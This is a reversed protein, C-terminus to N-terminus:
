VPETLPPMVAAMTEQPREILPLHWRGARSEIVVEHLGPLAERWGAVAQDIRILPDQQPDVGHLYYADGVCALEEPSPPQFSAIYAAQGMFAQIPYRHAARYAETALGPDASAELQPLQAVSPTLNALASTAPGGRYWSVAPMLWLPQKVTAAASPATDLFLTVRGYPSAARGYRRLFDAASMGGMSGGYVRLAGVPPDIGEIAHLVERFTLEVDVGHASHGVVIMADRPGLHAGFAKSLMAGPMRYGPFVVLLRLPAVSQPRTIFLEPRAAATDWSGIMSDLCLLVVVACLIRLLRRM